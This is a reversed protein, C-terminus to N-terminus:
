KTTLQNRMPLDAKFTGIRPAKDIDYRQMAALALIRLTDGNSKNIGIFQKYYIKYDTNQKGGSFSLLEIKTGDEIPAFTFKFDKLKIFEYDGETRRGKAKSLEVYKTEFTNQASKMEIEKEKISKLKPYILKGAAELRGDKEGVLIQICKPFENQYADNFAKVYDLTKQKYIIDNDVEVLEGINKEKEIAIAKSQELLLQLEKTDIIANPNEKLSLLAATLTDIFKQQNAKNLTIQANVADFFAFAKKTDVKTQGCSYFLM